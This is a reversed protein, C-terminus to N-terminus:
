FLEYNLTYISINKKKINDGKINIQFCFLYKNLLDLLRIEEIFYRNYANHDPFQNTKQLWIITSDMKIFEEGIRKIKWFFFSNRNKLKIMMM